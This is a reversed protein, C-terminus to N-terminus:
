INLNELIKPLCCNKCYMFLKRKLINKRIKNFSAGYWIQNLTSCNINETSIETINPCPGVRGDSHIVVSTWPEFCPALLLNNKTYIKRKSLLFQYLQEPKEIIPNLIFDHLNTRINLKKSKLEVNQILKQFKVIEYKKLELKKMKNDTIILTQFSIEDCSLNNALRVINELNNYNKNTIVTNIKLLPKNKRLKKKWYRFLQISNVCKKFTGKVGRIYDHMQPYASDLSFTIEDWDIEVIKQVDKPTLLTGNTTIHGEIKLSKITKMIEIIGQTYFFPEGGGTITMVKTGLTYADFITSVLKKNSLEVRNKYCAGCMRCKLNCVNTPIIDMSYPGSKERHSWKLIRAWKGGTQFSNIIKFM